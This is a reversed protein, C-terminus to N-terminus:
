HYPKWQGPFRVRIGGPDVTPRVTSAPAVGTV